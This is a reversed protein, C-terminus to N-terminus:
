YSGGRVSSGVPLYKRQPAAIRDAVAESFGTEVLKGRVLALRTSGHRGTERQDRGNHAAHAPRGTVAAEPPPRDVLIPPDPVVGAPAMFTGSPDGQDQRVQNQGLGQHSTRNAPIRVGM